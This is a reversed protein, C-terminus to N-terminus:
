GVTPPQDKRKRSWSMFIQFGTWILSAIAAIEIIGETKQPEGDKASVTTGGSPFIADVFAVIEGEATTLTGQTTMLRIAESGNAADRQFYPLVLDILDLVKRVALTYNGSQLARFVDAAAKAIEVYGSLTGIKEILDALKGFDRSQIAAKLDTWYPAAYAMLISKIRGKFWDGIGAVPILEATDDTM